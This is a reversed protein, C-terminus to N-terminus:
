SYIYARPTLFNCFFRGPRFFIPPANRHYYNLELGLGCAELQFIFAAISLGHMYRNASLEKLSSSSAQAQLKVIVKSSFDLKPSLCFFCENRLSASSLELKKM